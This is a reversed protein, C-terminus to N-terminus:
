LRMIIECIRSGKSTSPRLNHLNYQTFYWDGCSYGQSYTRYIVLHRCSPCEQRVPYFDLVEEAASVM